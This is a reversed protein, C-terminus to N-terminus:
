DPNCHEDWAKRIKAVHSEVLEQIRGVERESFGQNRALEIPELWFKCLMKERQVHVHMPENCDFSYFFVRYPGPVNKISPM